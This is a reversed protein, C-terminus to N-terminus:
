NKYKNKWSGNNRSINSYLLGLSYNGISELIPIVICLYILFGVYPILTVVSSLASAVIILAVMSLLWKFINFIGISRIDAIVENVKLAESLSNLYALRAKAFFFLFEFIIYTILILVLAFGFTALFSLLKFEMLLGISSVGITSLSIFFVATPVLMYVIRLALVRIADHITDVINFSPLTASEVSGKRVIGLLYGPVILIFTFFAIVGIFLVYNNNLLWGIPIVAILIFLICILPLKFLNRFPYKISNLILNSLNM